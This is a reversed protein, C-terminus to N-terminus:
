QCPGANLLLMSIDGSDVNGSGDLDTSCSACPGIDLLVMSVDGTDVIGSRDLDFVCNCLDNGGNDTWSGSVNDPFNDCIV